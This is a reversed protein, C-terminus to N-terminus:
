EPKEALGRWPKQYQIMSRYKKNKVAGDIDSYWAGWFRGTWYQFTNGGFVSPREYVGKLVPKVSGDFWPTLKKSM